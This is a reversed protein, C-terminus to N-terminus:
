TPMRPRHHSILVVRKNGFYGVKLLVKGKLDEPSPLESIEMEPEGDARCVLADGFVEVMIEAVRDQQDLTAHMEASIIIPYPSTVFGYRIIAECVEKLSVKSTFTKGHFIMPEGDDGDYM